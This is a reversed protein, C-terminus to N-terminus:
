AATVKSPVGSALFFALFALFSLFALFLAFFALFFALFSRPPASADVRSEGTSPDGDPLSAPVSVDDGAPGPGPGGRSGACEMSPSAM